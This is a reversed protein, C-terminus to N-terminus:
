RCSSIRLRSDPPRATSVDAVLIVPRVRALHDPRVELLGSLELERHVLADAFGERGFLRLAEGGSGPARVAGV